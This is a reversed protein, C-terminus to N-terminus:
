IMGMFESHTIKNFANIASKTNVNFVSIGAKDLQKKKYTFASIWSKLKKDSRGKNIDTWKYPEYWYYDSAPKNQMDFGFLFIRKPRMQYALNLACSGSNDGDLNGPYENMYSNKTDCDFLALRPWDKGKLRWACRRFYAQVALSRCTEYNNEMWLRDMSVISHCRVRIGADNVGIVHGYRHLGEPQCEGASAGGGIIIINESAM